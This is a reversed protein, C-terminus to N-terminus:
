CPLINTYFYFIITIILLLTIVLLFTHLIYYNPVNKTHYNILATSTVTTAITNAKKSSVTIIEDCETISIDAIIKLYKSNECICTSPNWNYSKCKRFNKCVCQCTKNNRKQNSNCTTSNRKRRSNCSIHKKMTKDENKNTIVNFVKVNIDKTKM